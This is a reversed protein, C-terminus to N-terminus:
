GFAPGGAGTWHHKGDDDNVLLLPRRPRNRNEYDPHPSLSGYCLNPRFASGSFHGFHKSLTAANVGRRIFVVAVEGSLFGTGAVIAYWGWVEPARAIWLGTAMLWLVLRFITRRWRWDSSYAELAAKRTQFGYGTFLPIFLALLYTELM